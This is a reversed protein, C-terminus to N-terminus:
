NNNKEKIEFTINYDGQEYFKESLKHYGLEEFMEDAKSM